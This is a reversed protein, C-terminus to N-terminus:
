NLIITKTGVHGYIPDFELIQASAKSSLYLGEAYPDSGIFSPAVVVSLNHHNDDGVIYEAQSHYHGLFVYDLMTRYQNSLDKIANQRNKIQHGHLACCNFNCIKFMVYDRESDINVNVRTNQSLLDSIYAGIVKELDEYALENAKTGLPRTQTHNAEGVHYYDITCYASLENLFNAMLRSYKVVAEVVPIENLKVDTLHIQGQLSDGLSCIKLKTIGNRRVFNATESLLRNLRKEFIETSYENKDTKFRAGFHEDGFLLLYEKNARTVVDSVKLKPMELYEKTKEFNEYFLEFRSDIRDQRSKELKTAQLKYREKQIDDRLKELTAIQENDDSFKDMNDSLMQKFASYRKRYTSEGWNHGLEANLIDAVDQWTGIADKRECIRYIYANENEGSFREYM